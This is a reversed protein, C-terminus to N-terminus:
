EAILAALARSWDFGPGPDAKRGPAIEQHGVVADLSLRPYRRFLAKLVQELRRYQAQTFRGTEVGELEIGISFDNCRSRGRWCSEGAHWACQDFPVFQTARGRRDIFLHASVRLDRLDDYSQHSDCDLENVFLRLVDDSGFVGPPLSICHIVVLEIDRAEERPDCNASPMRRVRSLWHDDKVHLASSSGISIPQPESARFARM